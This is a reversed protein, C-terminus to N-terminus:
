LLDRSAGCSLSRKALVWVEFHPPGGLAVHAARATAGTTLIDDAFVILPGESFSVGETYNVTAKLEILAREGRDKRRQKKTGESGVNELGRILTAGLSTALAEAWLYAHDCSNAKKAPAPIVYIKKGSPVAEAFTQAFRKAYFSWIKKHGPGKLSLILHSLLDSQGPNWEFLARAAYPKSENAAVTRLRQLSKDCRKCLLGDRVFFSGCNLCCSCYSALRRMFSIM